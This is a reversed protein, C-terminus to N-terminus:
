WGFTIQTNVGNPTSITVLNTAGQAVPPNLKLVLKMTEMPNFINPEFIEPNGGLFIGGVTWGPTSTTYPVWEVGGNQYRVIVDWSEFHALDTQGDNRIVIEARAGGNDTNDSVSTIETHRIDIAQSEEYKWADALRDISTLSSFAMTSAGMVLLSICVLSIIANEM